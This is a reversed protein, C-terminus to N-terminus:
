AIQQLEPNLEPDSVASFLIQLSEDANPLMRDLLGQVRKAEEYNWTGDLRSTWPYHCIPGDEASNRKAAFEETRSEVQGSAHIEYRIMFNEAENFHPLFEFASEGRNSSSWGTTKLPPREHSLTQVIANIPGHETRAVVIPPTQSNPQDSETSPGVVSFLKRFDNLMDTYRAENEAGIRQARDHRAAAEEALKQQRKEEADVMRSQMKILAEKNM